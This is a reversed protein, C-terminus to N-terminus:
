ALKQCGSVIHEVTEEAAGCVRCSSDINEGYMIKRLNRTCSAQDQASINTSETKKKLRGKKLWGM